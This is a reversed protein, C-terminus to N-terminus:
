VLTYPSPSRSNWKVQRM